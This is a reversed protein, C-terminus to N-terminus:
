AELLALLPELVAPPDGAAHMLELQRRASSLQGPEARAAARTYGATAEALKDEGGDLLHEHLACEALRLQAWVDGGSPQGRTAAFRVIPLLERAAALDPEGGGWRQGRLRLLAIANIGPYPNGPNAEMGERYAQISRELAKPAPREGRHVANEVRAKAASGRLGLREATKGHRKELAQLRKEAEALQTDDFQGARILVHAYQEQLRLRVLKTDARALPALIGRAEAYRDLTVLQLGIQELLASRAVPTLEDSEEVRTVLRLLEEVDGLDGALTCEELLTGAGDDTEPAEPLVVEPLANINAFVPSDVRREDVAALAQQLRRIAGVADRDRIGQAGRQYHLIPVRQVDFPPTVWVPAMLVTGSRRWAHRLGLEWMVNANLLALDVIMVDASNIERLMTHDIVELLADTDARIPRCGADILAPVMIRRYSLDAAFRRWGRDPDPKEGFPMAVFARSLEARSKAPDIRLALRNPNRGHQVLEETHDLIDRAAAVAVIVIPEAEGALEEGREVIRRTVARYGDRAAELGPLEELKVRDLQHDYRREWGAGKDAVSRGRFDDRDGVVMVEAEIELAEAAELALLDAGAAASGVVVRPRLGGLLQVLQDGVFDVNSDPFDVGPRRGAYLVIV